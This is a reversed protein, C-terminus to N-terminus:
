CLSFTLHISYVYCCVDPIVRVHVDGAKKPPQPPPHYSPYTHSILATEKRKVENAAQQRTTRKRKQGPQADYDYQGGSSLSGLSTAATTHIASNTTRASSSITSGSPTGNQHPTTTSADLRSHHVPDYHTGSVSPVDDDRKRRKPAHRAASTNASVGTGNTGTTYTYTTGANSSAQQAPAAAAAAAAADDPEPTDDIIIIEKPARGGYFEDWDVPGERRRKRSSPNHSTSAQTDAPSTPMTTYNSDLIAPLETADQRHSRALSPNASFSSGNITLSSAHTNSSPAYSSTSSAPYSPAQLRNAAPVQTATTRYSSTANTPYYNYGHHSPLHHYHNHPITATATTPTSMITVPPTTKGASTAKPHARWGPSPASKARTQDSLTKPALLPQGVHERCSSTELHHHSLSSLPPPNQPLLHVVVARRLRPCWPPREIRFPDPYDSRRDLELALRPDLTQRRHCYEDLETPFGVNNLPKIADFHLSTRIVVVLGPPSPCGLLLATPLSNQNENGDTWTTM